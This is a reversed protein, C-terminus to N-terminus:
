FNTKVQSVNMNKLKQLCEKVSEKLNGSYLFGKQISKQASVHYSLQNMIPSDVFEIELGPINEQIIQVIDNVTLNTTVVNYIEADFLQEQIAFNIAQLCDKLDCYPRKQHLATKWVSIKQGLSAQWLFKNVATHFRMGASYGFITGLRFIVCKLGKERSLQRLMREGYLKSEAYPSQPKLDKDPCDEDVMGQQVGYVSTTSPFVFACGTQACLQAVNELGNKNVADVLEKKHFSTEADTVAALHVCVDSDELIPALAASSIDMERFQFHYGEPLDFLSAYRQTLFNDVLYIKDVQPLRINRILASGIHGLAGTICINM